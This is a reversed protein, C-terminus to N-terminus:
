KAANSDNPEGGAKTIMFMYATVDIQRNLGKVTGDVMLHNVVVTHGSSPGYDPANVKGPQGINNTTLPAYKAYAAAETGRPGFDYSLFTRYLM